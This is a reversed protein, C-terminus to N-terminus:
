SGDFPQRPDRSLHRLMRQRSAEQATAERQRRVEDIDIGPNQAEIRALQLREIEARVADWELTGVPCPVLEAVAHWHELCTTAEVKWRSLQEVEVQLQAVMENAGEAQTRTREVFEVYSAIMRDKSAIAEDRERRLKGIIENIADDTWNEM